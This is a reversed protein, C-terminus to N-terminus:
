YLIIGIVLCQIINISYIKLFTCSLGLQYLTWNQRLDSSIKLCFINQLLKQGWSKSPDVGSILIRPQRYTPPHNLTFKTNCKPRSRSMINVKLSPGLPVFIGDLSPRLCSVNMSYITHIDFTHANYLNSWTM